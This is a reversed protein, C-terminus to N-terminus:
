LRLVACYLCQRHMHTICLSGILFETSCKMEVGMGYLCISTRQYEIGPSFARHLDNYEFSFVSNMRSYMLLINKMDVITKICMETQLLSLVSYLDSIIPM